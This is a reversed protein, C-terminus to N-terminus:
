LRLSPALNLAFPSALRPAITSALLPIGWWFGLLTAVLVHLSMSCLLTVFSLLFPPSLSAAVCLSLCFCFPISSYYINGVPFSPPCPLLVEKKREKRELEKGRDKKRAKKREKREM